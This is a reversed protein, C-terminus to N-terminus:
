ARSRRHMAFYTLYHMGVMREETINWARKLRRSIMRQDDISVGQGIAKVYRRFGFIRQDHSYGVIFQREVAYLKM